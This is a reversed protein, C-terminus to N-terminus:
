VLRSSDGGRGIERKNALLRFGGDKFRVGSTQVPFAVKPGYANTPLNFRWYGDEAVINGNKELKANVSESGNLPGLYTQLTEPDPYSSKQVRFSGRVDLIDDHYYEDAEPFLTHDGTLPDWLFAGYYPDESGPIELFGEGLVQDGIL